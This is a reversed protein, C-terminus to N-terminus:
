YPKYAYQLHTGALIEHVENLKSKIFFLVIIIGIFLIAIWSILYRNPESLSYIIIGGLVAFLLIIINFLLNRIM